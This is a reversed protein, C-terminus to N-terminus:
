TRQAVDISNVLYTGDDPNATLIVTWGKPLKWSIYEQKDILEMVSQSFRLDARTWDDLCLIGGGQKDSIWEPAAYSMRKNGTFIYGKTTYQVLANEDVWITEKLPSSATSKVMVTQGNPLQKKVMVPETITQDAKTLQFQRLPFGILDALEDLQALNLKVFNLNNEKALQSIISTKGLGAPGNVEVAVPTLGKGQLENNTKLIHNLFDKIEGADLKVQAM